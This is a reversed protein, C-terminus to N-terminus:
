SGYRFESGTSSGARLVDQLDTLPNIVLIYLFSLFSVRCLILSGSFLHASSDLLCNEFSTCIALLHLFAWHGLGYLFHL